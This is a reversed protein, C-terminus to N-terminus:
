IAEGWGLRDEFSGAFERDRDRRVRWKCHPRDLASQFRTVTRPVVIRTAGDIPQSSREVVRVIVFFTQRRERLLPRRAKGAASGKLPRSSQEYAAPTSAIASSATLRRRRASLRVM